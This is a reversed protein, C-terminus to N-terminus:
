RIRRAAEVVRTVYSPVPENPHRPPLVYEPNDPQEVHDAHHPTPSDVFLDGGGAEVAADFQDVADLLDAIEDPTERGTLAVGRSRLRGAVEAEVGRVEEDRRPDLARQPHDFSGGGKPRPTKDAPLRPDSM